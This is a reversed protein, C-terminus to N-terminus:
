GRLAPAGRAVEGIGTEKGVSRATEGDGLKGEGRCWVFADMDVREPETASVRLFCFLLSSTRTVQGGEGDNAKREPIRTTFPM